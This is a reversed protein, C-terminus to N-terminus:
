EQDRGWLCVVFWWASHFVQIKENIGEPCRCRQTCLSFILSHITGSYFSLFTCVTARMGSGRFWKKCISCRGCKRESM